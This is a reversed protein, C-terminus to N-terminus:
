FWLSFNQHPLKPSAVIVSIKGNSFTMGTPAANRCAEWLNKLAASRGINRIIIVGKSNRIEYLYSLVESYEEEKIDNILLFPEAQGEPTSRYAKISDAFTRFHHITNSFRSLIPQTVPYETVNAECLYLQSKSSVALMCASSVGYNTGIQLIRAPNFYNTIRFILKANKFSIIRPHRWFNHTQDIALQRIEAIDEYAYYPLRERLVNLVFHFAFPSHIGFGKSRSYRRLATLYRKLKM